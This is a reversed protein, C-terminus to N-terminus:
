EIRQYTINTMTVLATNINFSNYCAAFSNSDGKTGCNVNGNPNQSQLYNGFKLYDASSTQVTMQQTTGLASVTLSGYNNEVRLNFTDGSQITGLPFKLETGSTNRMRVYVDFIGNTHTSDFFGSENTDSVYVKMTTGLGSTHYQAVIMKGGDSLDIKYDAQLLEYTQDMPLRDAPPVKMEHRWGNGNPTTYQAQLANFVLSNGQVPSGGESDDMTDLLLQPIQGNSGGGGGGGSGSGTVYIDVETLSNWNNSTNGYGVIRVYRASTDTVEFNQLGTTSLPQPGSWVTSWSSANSSVQIDINATRQNGKYFAIRLNDVTYTNGLDFRIWQGNGQASWRTSLSGDLTNGPVNGDHSSATVSIPEVEAASVVSFYLLSLLAIVFQTVRSAFHTKEM